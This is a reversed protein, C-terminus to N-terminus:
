LAEMEFHFEDAFTDSAILSMGNKKIASSEM